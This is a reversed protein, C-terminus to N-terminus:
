VLMFSFRLLASCVPSGKKEEFIEMINSAGFGCFSVRPFGEVWTELRAAFVGL